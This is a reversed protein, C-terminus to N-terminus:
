TPLTLRPIKIITNDADSGADAAKVGITSTTTVLTYAGGNKSVRLEYNLTNPAGIHKLSARLRFPSTTPTYNTDEAAAWTPNADVAGADTRFRFHSQNFGDTTPIFHIQLAIDWGSNYQWSSGNWYYNTGGSYADFDGNVYYYVGPDLSSTRTFVACYKTGFTVSPPSAFTFTTVLGTFENLASGAHTDSTALSAGTPQDSGDSLYIDCVYNDGPHSPTCFINAYLRDITGTQIATFSQSQKQFTGSSGFALANGDFFKGTVVMNPNTADVALAGGGAFVASGGWATILSRVVYENYKLTGNDNVIYPIVIDSGRQYINGDISLQSDGGTVTAVFASTEGTWNDGNDSSQSVYLGSDTSKRYLAWGTGNDSFLRTPIAVSTGIFTTSLNQTPTDASNFFTDRNVSLCIIQITGGNDYSIATKIGASGSSINSATQLTNASSLARHYNQASAIADTYFFHLRDSTGLVAEPFVFDVQGGASVQVPASWTSVATRRSYYTQAYSNGMSAVQAGSFFAVVEGGSRVVVSCGYQPTGASTGTNLSTIITENTVFTDSSMDFTFYRYQVSTTVAEGSAVLHIVDGVQFASIFEVNNTSFSTYTAISSFSSTPDTAKQCQIKTNDSSSQGIFYYAEQVTFLKIPTDFLDNPSNLTVWAGNLLFVSQGNSLYDGPTNFAPWLYYDTASLSGTRSIVAAYKTSGTLAVPTNFTFTYEVLAGGLATLTSGVVTTSTGLSSGTPFGSGDTAYIDFLINDTPSGQKYLYLKIFNLNVSSGTTFTQGMSVTNASLQGFGSSSSTSVSHGTITDIFASQNNSTKYPGICAVATSIGTITTPLAM